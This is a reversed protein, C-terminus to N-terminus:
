LWEFRNWSCKIWMVGRSMSKPTYVSEMVPPTEEPTYPVLGFSNLHHGCSSCVGQTNMGDDKDKVNQVQKGVAVLPRLEPSHYAKQELEQFRAVLSRLSHELAVSEPTSPGPLLLDPTETPFFSDESGIKDIIDRIALPLSFSSSTTM